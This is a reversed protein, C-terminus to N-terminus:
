GLTICKTESYGAASTSLGGVLALAVFYKKM